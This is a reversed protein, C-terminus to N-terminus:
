VAEREKVKKENKLYEILGKSHSGLLNAAKNIDGAEVADVISEHEKAIAVPDVTELFELIFKTRVEFALSSWIKLLLSNGSAEVISKHFVQNHKQFDDFDRKRASAVIAKVVTQLSQVMEHLKLGTLNIALPELASRIELAEITDDVTIERVRVGKHPESELIGMAVLERLAERVPIPSCKMERSIKSEVIRDHPQLTGQVIRQLLMEHIQTSMSKRHITM